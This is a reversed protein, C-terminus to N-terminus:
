SLETFEGFAVAEADIVDGGRWLSPIDPSLGFGFALGLFLAAALALRQAAPRWGRTDAELVAAVIREVSDERTGAMELEATLRELARAERLAAHARPDHKALVRAAEALAQDPWRALEAGWRDLLARLRDVNLTSM